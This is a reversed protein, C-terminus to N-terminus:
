SMTESDNADPENRTPRLVGHAKLGSRCGLRRGGRTCLSTFLGFTGTPLSFVRGCCGHLCVVPIVPILADM